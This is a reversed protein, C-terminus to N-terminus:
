CCCHFNIRSASVVAQATRPYKTIHVNTHIVPGTPRTIKMTTVYFYLASYPSFYTPLEEVTCRVLLLTVQQVKQRGTCSEHFTMWKRWNVGKDSGEDDQIDFSFRGKRARRIAPLEFGRAPKKLTSNNFTYSCKFQAILFSCSQGSYKTPSMQM